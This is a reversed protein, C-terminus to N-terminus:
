PKREKPPEADKHPNMPAPRTNVVDNYSERRDKISEQIREIRRLRETQNDDDPLIKKDSNTM